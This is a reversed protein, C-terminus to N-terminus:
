FGGHRYYWRVNAFTVRKGDRKCARACDELILKAVRRSKVPDHAGVRWPARSYHEWTRKKIQFEGRSRGSDGVARADHRSELQSTREVWSDPVGNVTSILIMFGAIM